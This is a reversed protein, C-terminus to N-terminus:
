IKLFFPLAVLVLGIAVVMTMNSVFYPFVMLGLGCVLPVIASQKRGYMFFGLGVSSFLVALLLLSSNLAAGFHITGWRPSRDPTVGMSAMSERLFFGASNMM